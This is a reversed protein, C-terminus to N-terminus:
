PSAVPAPKQDHGEEGAMPSLTGKALLFILIGGLILRYVVFVKTGHKAVWTLLWAIVAYGVVGAVLTAVLTNTLGAESLKHRQSYLEFLGAGLVSPVSMLFSFRVAAKRDLGILFAGTLTSGSRSMGPILALCQLLGPLWGDKPQVDEISRNKSGFLEAAYMILAMGVMSGATIWLSRFTDGEILKKLAVGIVIVPITAWFVAWGMRAEITDRKTPDSLSRFWGGFAIVLDKWFYILVAAVTGIQIVATFATGPDTIGLVVPALRLHASSSIPLFESLGQVIGMIIAQVLGM